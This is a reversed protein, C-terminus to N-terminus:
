RRGSRRSSSADCGSTSTSRKSATSSPTFTRSAIARTTMSSDAINFLLSVDRFASGDKDLVSQQNDHTAKLKAVNVEDVEDSIKDLKQAARHAAQTVEATQVM